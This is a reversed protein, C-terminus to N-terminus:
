GASQGPVPVCWLTLDAAVEQRGTDRVEVLVVPRNPPGGVLRVEAHGPGIDIPALYRIQLREVLHDRGADARLRSLAAVEGLIATLGGMLSNTSNGLDNRLAIQAVGPSPSLLGIQDLLSGSPRSGNDSARPARDAPSPSDTLSIASFTGSCVAVATGDPLAFTTETTFVRKGRRRLISEIALHEIPRHGPDAMIVDLTLEVTVSLKPLTLARVQSGAVTDAFSILVSARPFPCGPLWGVPPIRADGRWIDEGDEFALGLVQMLSGRPADTEPPREPMAAFTVLERRRAM